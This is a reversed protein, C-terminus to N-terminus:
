YYKLQFFCFTSINYKSTRFLPNFYTQYFRTPIYNPKKADRIEMILSNIKNEM